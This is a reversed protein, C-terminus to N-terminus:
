ASLMAFTVNPQLTRFTLVDLLFGGGLLVSPLLHRYRELSTRLM